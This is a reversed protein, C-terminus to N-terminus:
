GSIRGQGHRSAVSGISSLHSPYDPIGRCSSRKKGRYLFGDGRRPKRRACLGDSCTCKPSLVSTGIIIGVLAALTGSWNATDLHEVREPLRLPSACRGHPPFRRQRRAAVM